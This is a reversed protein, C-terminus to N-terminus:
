VLHFYKCHLLQCSSCMLVRRKSRERGWLTTLYKRMRKSAPSICPQKSLVILEIHRNTIIHSSNPLMLFLCLFCILSHKILSDQPPQNVCSMLYLRESSGLKYGWENNQSVWDLGWSGCPLLSVTGVFQGRIEVCMGCCMYLSGMFM